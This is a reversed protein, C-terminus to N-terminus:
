FPKSGAARPEPVTSPARQASRPAPNRARGRARTPDSAPARDTEPARDWAGARGRRGLAPARRSEAADARQPCRELRARAPHEDHTRNRRQTVDRRTGAPASRTPAPRGHLSQLCDVHRAPELAGRSRTVRAVRRSRGRPAASQLRMRSRAPPMSRVCSDAASLARARDTQARGHARAPPPEHSRADAHRRAPEHAGTLPLAGRWGVLRGAGCCRPWRAGGNWPVM